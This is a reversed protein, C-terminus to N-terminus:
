LSPSGATSEGANSAHKAKQRRCAACSCISRCAPCAWKSKQEANPSKEHYFKNLCRDCYKKRCGQRKGKGRMAPLSKCLILSSLMCRSKCQHCSSGSGNGTTQKPKSSSTSSSGAAAPVNGLPQKTDEEEEDEESDEDEDSHLERRPQPTLPPTNPLMAEQSIPSKLQHKLDPEIRRRKANEPTMSAPLQFEASLALLQSSTNERKKGHRTFKGLNRVTSGNITVPAPLRTCESEPIPSTLDLYSIGPPYMPSPMSFTPTALAIDTTRNEDPSSLHSIKSTPMTISSSAAATAQPDPLAQQKGTLKSGIKVEEDEVGCDTIKGIAKNDIMSGKEASIEASSMATVQQDDATENSGSEHDTAVETRYKNNKTGNKTNNLGILTDFVTPSMPKSSSSTMVNM